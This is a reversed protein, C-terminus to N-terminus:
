KLNAVCGPISFIVKVTVSTLLYKKHILLKYLNQLINDYLGHKMM